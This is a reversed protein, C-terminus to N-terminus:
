EKDSNASQAEGRREKNKGRITRRDEPIPPPVPRGSVKTVAEFRCVDFCMGCKICKEQEIIHITKKGGVIAGVPCRKLCLMCARCKDPEIYYSVAREILETIEGLTFYDDYDQPTKIHRSLKEREMMKIYPLLGIIRRLKQRLEDINIGEAIGLAGIKQIKDIFGNVVETFILGDGSSMFEIRLRDPNLNMYELIRKCLLTTNLAHYNGGTIYNCEGLRCAGIFVGDMGRLFARLIFELDVRGSCM